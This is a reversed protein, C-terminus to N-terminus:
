AFPKERINRQQYAMTLATHLPSDETLKKLARLLLSRIISQEYGTEKKVTRYSTTRYFATLIQVEWEAHFGHNELAYRIEDDTLKPYYQEFLERARARFGTWLENEEDRLVKMEDEYGV